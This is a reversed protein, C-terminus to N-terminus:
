RPNSSWCCCFCSRASAAGRRLPPPARPRLRTLTRDRSGGRASSPPSPLVRGRLLPRHHSCWRRPLSSSGVDVGSEDKPSRKEQQLSVHIVLWAPAPAPAPAPRPPAPRPPANRSTLLILVAIPIGRSQSNPCPQISGFDEHEDQLFRAHVSFSCASVLGLGYSTPQAHVHQKRIVLHRYVHAEISLVGHM